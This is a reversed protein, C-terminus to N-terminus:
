GALKEKLSLRDRGLRDLGVQVMVSLLSSASEGPQKRAEAQLAEWLKPDITICVRKKNKM